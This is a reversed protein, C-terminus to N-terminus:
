LCKVSPIPQAGEPAPFLKNWTSPGVIGDAAIGAATQFRAVAEQTSQSYAGDVNGSYFGLLKLTAQLYSISEDTSGAALM